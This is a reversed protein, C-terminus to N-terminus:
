RRAARSLRHHAPRRGARVRRAQILATSARPLERCAILGLLRERTALAEEVTSPWDETHV